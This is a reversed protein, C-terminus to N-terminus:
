FEFLRSKIKGVLGIKTEQQTSQLYSEDHEHLLLGLACAYIPSSIIAENGKIKAGNIHALKTRITMFERLLVECDRIKSAGGTLVFGAKFPPLKKQSKLNTKILEFLQQYSQQIVEILEHTSLYCTQAVNIQKFPILEDKGAQRIKTDGHAIKLREAEAFDTNFAYAIAQTIDDGGMPLVANYAIGGKVFVSLGVVGAGIDLLCVGEDKDDQTLIAESSAISGLVIGSIGLGSQHITQEINGVSQNSVTIIHIDAYLVSAELGIPKDVAVMELDQDIEFGNVINDLIQKNASIPIAAATKLASEVDSRVINKAAVPVHGQRNIAEVNLDAINVSVHHVATNCSACAKKMVEKIAASTANIDAVQGKRVGASEGLASGFVSLIGAQEEAILVVIKSTGIDISAKLHSNAM